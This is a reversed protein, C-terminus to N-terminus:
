AVPLVVPAGNARIDDQFGALFVRKHEPEISAFVVLIILYAIQLDETFTLPLFPLGKPQVTAEDLGQFIFVAPIQHCHGKRRRSRVFHSEPEIRHPSHGGDGRCLFRCLIFFQDAIRFIVVLHLTRIYHKFVAPRFGAFLRNQM